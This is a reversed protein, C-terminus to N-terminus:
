CVILEVGKSEFEKRQASTIKNDTILTHIDTIKCIRSFAAQGIKDSTAVVVVKKAAKALLNGVKAEGEHNATAGHEIDLANVGIFAVDVVLGDMVHNAQEGILEFSQPRAIGGTVVIKIYPRVVMETAINVANTVVTLGIEGDSAVLKPSSVLERAIETTTTGGNFAIRDGREVMAAAAKAVLRKEKSDKGTKYRLPLDYSSAIAQIGGHTRTVLQKSALEDFDRRITALSVKLSKAAAEVDLHGGKAVLELIRNARENRSM